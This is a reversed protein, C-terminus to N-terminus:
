RRATGTLPKMIGSAPSFPFNKAWSKEFFARFLGFLVRFLGSLAWFRRPAALLCPFAAGLDTKSLPSPPLLPVRHLFFKPPHDGGPSFLGSLCPGPSAPASFAAPNPGWRSSPGTSPPPQLPLRPHHKPFPARRSSPTTLRPSPSVPAPPVQPRPGALPFSGRLFLAPPTPPVKPLLGTPLFLYYLPSTSPAPAHPAEPLIGWWSSPASALHPSPSTPASLTVPGRRSPPTDSLHPSLPAPAPPATPIPARQSSPTASLRLSSPHTRTTSRPSPPRQSSPATSPRPQLSHRPPPLSPCLFPAARLRSGIM